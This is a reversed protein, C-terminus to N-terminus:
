QVVVTGRMGSEFNSSHAECRFRYTGPTAFTRTASAGFGLDPIDSSEFEANHSGGLTFTVASGASITVTPPNYANGPGTAITTTAVPAASVTVNRTETLTGDVPSTLSATVTTQGEAIASLVGTGADITAVTPASSLFSPAPLGAIATGAADRPTAAFEIAGGVTATTTAPTLALATFKQRVRIPVAASTVSGASATVATAGAGVARVVGASSVTAVAQDQSAYTFTTGSIPAGAADSATATLPITQGLGFLTDPAAPSVTVTAVTRPPTVTGGGDGGGGGCGVVVGVSLGLVCFSVPRM